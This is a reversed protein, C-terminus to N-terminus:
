IDMHAMQKPCILWSLIFVAISFAAAIGCIAFMNERINMFQKLIALLGILLGATTIYALILGVTSKNEDLSFACPINISGPLLSIVIAISSYIFLDHIDFSQKFICAFLSVIGGLVIGAVCLLLYELYKSTTIQTRSVPLTVSFKNWQTAKDNHITTTAQMSLTTATIIILVWPSILFALGGGVAIFVLILM